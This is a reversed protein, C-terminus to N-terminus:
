PKSSTEGKAELYLNVGDKCAIIDIGHQVTTLNQEITYGLTELKLSFKDIVDNETLM